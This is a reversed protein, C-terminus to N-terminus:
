MSLFEVTDQYLRVASLPGYPSGSDVAIRYGYDKPGGGSHGHVITTDHPWDQCDVFGQIIRTRFRDQNDPAHKPSWGAHVITYSGIIIEDALYRIWVRHNEPMANRLMDGVLVADITENEPFNIGYSALTARAGNSPHKLWDIALGAQGAMTGAMFEEHNGMVGEIGNEILFEICDKARPGRDIVDGVTIIRADVDRSQIANVLAVLGDYNCHIDGIVWAPIDSNTSRIM